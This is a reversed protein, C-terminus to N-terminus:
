YSLGFKVKYINGDSDQYAYSGSPSKALVEEEMYQDKDYGPVDNPSVCIEYTEGNEDTVEKTEIVENCSVMTIPLKGTPKVVGTLIDMQASVTTGFEGILGDCYPELNTLIWPNSINLATVVIGGNAHVKNAIKQIDEVNALTTVKVMKGTKETSINIDIHSVELGDVLDIVNMFENEMAIGDPVVSLFAIDAEEESDVVTFGAKQFANKYSTIKEEDKGKETFSTIYVKKDKNKLPLVNDHNKMLVVSKRNIEEGIKEMEASMGEVTAKSEAVDKYPNEFQGLQICPRLMESNVRGLTEATILGQEIAEAYDTYNVANFNDGVVSAGSNIIAAKKQVNTLSEEVGFARDMTVIGSDTNVFGKFGMTERLLKNQITDSYANAVGDSSVTLGRYTQTVSGYTGDEAQRSYGPMIGAVGADIAKQFAVLQYKELSGETQYVRWQGGVYHSEFGNYAAGDGPFHKMILAVDGDQLGDTGTQYGKVLAEAIGSMIEPDETYTTHNRSWRPDTVIDIQPGYMRQIGKADLIKRDMDAYKEILDYNGDGIAAAGMGLNYSPIDISNNPNALITFPVTPENKAVAAYETVMALANTWLAGVELDIIPRLVGSRSEYTLMDGTSNNRNTITDSKANLADQTVNILKTLDVKGNEDYVEQAKSALPSCNMQNELLGIKQQTTLKPLLDALRTDTDKRWDEFVDLEQDNDSDKFYLGDQKIVGVLTTGITPGGKNQYFVPELYETPGQKAEDITYAAPIYESESSVEAEVTGSNEVTDPTTTTGSGCGALVMSTTLTLALMTNLKRKKIMSREGKGIEAICHKEQKM